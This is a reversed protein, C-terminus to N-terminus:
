PFHPFAAPISFIGRESFCGMSFFRELQFLVVLFHQLSHCMHNLAHFKSHIIVAPGSFCQNPGEINDATIIFDLKM